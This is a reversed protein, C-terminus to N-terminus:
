FYQKYGITHTPAAQSYGLGLGWGYHKRVVKGWWAYLYLYPALMKSGQQVCITQELRHQVRDLGGLAGQNRAAVRKRRARVFVSVVRVVYPMPKAIPADIFYVKPVTRRRNRGLVLYPVAKGFHL